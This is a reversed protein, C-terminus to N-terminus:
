LVSVPKRYQYEGGPAQVYEGGAWRLLMSQMESGCSCKVSYDVPTDDEELTEDKYGLAARAKKIEKGYSVFRFGKVQQIFVDLLEDPMKSLSSDKIIYKTCELIVSVMDGAIDAEVKEGDIMKYAEEHNVIAKYDLGLAASWEATIERLFAGSVNAEGRWLLLIHFHPHFDRRAKNYTIELNRAWGVVSKMIVKRSINHWAKSMAEITHGLQGPECNRLTLTLMSAHCNEKILGERLAELVNCMEGFRRQSLRWSCVPCLRDRCYSATGSEVRGCSPCKRAILYDACTAMRAARGRYGLRALRSSMVRAATKKERWVANVQKVIAQEEAIIGM